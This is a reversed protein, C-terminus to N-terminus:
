GQAKKVVATLLYRETEEWHLIAECYKKDQSRLQKGIPPQVNRETNFTPYPSSFICSSSGSMFDRLTDHYPTTSLTKSPKEQHKQVLIM